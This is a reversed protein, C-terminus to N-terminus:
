QSGLRTFKRTSVTKRSVTQAHTTATLAIARKWESRKQQVFISVHKVVPNATDQEYAVEACCGNVLIMVMLQLM